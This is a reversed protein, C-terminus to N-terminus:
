LLFKQNRSPSDGHCHLQLEVAYELLYGFGAVDGHRGFIEINGLRRHALGDLLQFGGELGPEKGAAGQAEDGGPLVLEGLGLLQQQAGQDDAGAVRDGAKEERLVEVGEVTEM